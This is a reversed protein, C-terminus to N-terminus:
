IKKREKKISVCDTESVGVAFARQTRIYIYESGFISPLM